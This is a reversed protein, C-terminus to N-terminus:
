KVKLIGIDALLLRHLMFLHLVLEFTRRDPTISSSLKFTCCQIDPNNLVGCILIDLSFEYNLYLLIIIYKIQTRAKSM